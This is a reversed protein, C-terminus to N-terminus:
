ASQHGHIHFLGIAWFIIIAEPWTLHIGGEGFRTKAKKSYQCAIDYMVLLTRIGAYFQIAESLAYDMNLQRLIKM